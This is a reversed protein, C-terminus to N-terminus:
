WQPPISSLLGNLGDNLIRGRDRTVTNDGERFQHRVAVLLKAHLVTDNSGTGSQECEELRQMAKDYSLSEAYFHSVVSTPTAAALPREKQPPFSPLEEPSTERVDAYALAICTAYAASLIRLDEINTSPDTKITTLRGLSLLAAAPERTLLQCLALHFLAHHGFGKHGKRVLDIVAQFQVMADSYRKRREYFRGLSFINYAQVKDPTDRIANLLLQEAAAHNGRLEQLRARTLPDGPWRTLYAEVCEAAEKTHGLRWYVSSLYTYAPRYGPFLERLLKLESIAEDSRGSEVLVIARRFRAVRNKPHARIVEEYAALALERQGRGEYHMAAGLIAYDNEPELDGTEEQSKASLALGFVGLFVLFSPQVRM